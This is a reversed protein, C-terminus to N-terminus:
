TPASLEMLGSASLDRTERELVSLVEAKSQLGLIDAALAKAEKVSVSRIMKKVQPAQMPAVSFARLGMGLLLVVFVPDSAMAGCMSIPIGRRSAADIVMQILRLVAPEAPTFLSAVHENTRDVALTYQILDNTGISFFDAELALADAMLAAAPVEIMIGMELDPNFPVGESELEDRVEDLVGKAWRVEEPTTIMPLMCKVNGKGSVRLIARLQTRFIEPHVQCLRISRCGLFPNRELEGTGGVGVKDAGIDLTRILIPKGELFSLAAEYAELHDQETPMKGSRLFLFETRYLGIGEAGHEVVSPIEEPFEINGFVSVLVDDRTKAPLHSEETLRREYGIYAQEWERYKAITREDPGIILVGRQGDVIVTEGPGVDSSATEVGVVAPIGLDRALLAAHATRGGVDTAIGLVKSRDFSVTQSPSLSHAVVVVPGPERGIEPHRTGQLITLVRREVDELDPVRQALYSDGLARLRKVYKQVARDVAYEATFRNNEIRSLVEKRLSRDSLMWLHAGFIAAAGEGVETSMREQLGQIDTKAREVAEIFRAVESEVQDESIFGKRVPVDERDFVVAKGIAYGPSAAIGQLIEM